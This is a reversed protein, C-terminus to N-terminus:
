RLYKSKRAEDSLPLEDPQEDLIPTEERGAAAAYGGEYEDPPLVGVHTNATALTTTLGAVLAAVFQAWDGQTSLYVSYLFAIASVVAYLIKRHAAPLLEILPGM